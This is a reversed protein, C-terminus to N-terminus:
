KIRNFYLLILKENVCEYGRGLKDVKVKRNKDTTVVLYNGITELNMIKGCEKPVQFFPKTGFM